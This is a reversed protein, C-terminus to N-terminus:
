TNPFLYALRAPATFVLQRSTEGTPILKVSLREESLVDEVIDAWEIAVVAKDDSVMESLEDRLIGPDNLRYFDLHYLRLKEGQYENSLTFSPSHVTDKVGLGKAIGSVFTTKGGGLDSTM